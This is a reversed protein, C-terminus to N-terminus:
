RRHHIIDDITRRVSYGRDFYGWDQYKKVESMSMEAILYDRSNGTRNGYKDTSNFNFRAYLYVTSSKGDAKKLTKYTKEIVDSLNFGWDVQNIGSIGISPWPMEM